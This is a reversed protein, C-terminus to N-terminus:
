LVGSDLDILNEDESFRVGPDFFNQRWFSFPKQWLTQLVMFINFADETDVQRHHYLNLQCQYRHFLGCAQSRCGPSCFVCSSCTLCPHPAVTIPVLCNLCHGFVLSRTLFHRMVKLYFSITSPLDLFYIASNVKLNFINM